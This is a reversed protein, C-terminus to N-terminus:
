EGGDCIGLITEVEEKSIQKDLWYGDLERGNHTIYSAFYEGTGYKNHHLEITAVIPTECINCPQGHKNKVEM